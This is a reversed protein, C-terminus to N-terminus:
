RDCPGNREDLTVAMRMVLGNFIGVAISVGVGLTASALTLLICIGLVVKAANSM